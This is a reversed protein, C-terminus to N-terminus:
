KKIPISLPNYRYGLRGSVLTSIFQSSTFFTRVVFNSYGFNSDHNYSYEDYSDIFFSPIDIGVICNTYDDTCTFSIMESPIKKYELETFDPFLYDLNDSNCNSKNNSDVPIRGIYAIEAGEILIKNVFLRNVYKIEFLFSLSTTFNVVSSQSNTRFLPKSIILYNNDFVAPVIDIRSPSISYALIIGCLPVIFTVSLWGLLWFVLKIVKNVTLKPRPSKPHYKKGYFISSILDYYTNWILDSILISINTKLSM